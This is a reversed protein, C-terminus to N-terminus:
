IGSLQAQNIKKQCANQNNPACALSIEDLYLKKTFIFQQFQMHKKSPEYINIGTVVKKQGTEYDFNYETAKGSIRELELAKFTILRFRADEYRFNFTHEVTEYSSCNLKYNLAVKIQGRNIKIEGAEVLPDALCPKKANHETPFGNNVRLVEKYGTPTQFLVMVQRPNMNLIKPGLTRNRKLYASDTNEVVMIADTLGDNNIDGLAYYVLIWNKPVMDNIMEVKVEGHTSTANLLFVITSISKLTRMMNPLFCLMAFIEAKIKNLVL